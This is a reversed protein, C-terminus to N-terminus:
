QATKDLREKWKEWDPMMKKQLNYFAKTHNHHILHCLEHIIVYEISAKPAKILEPNLIIKGNTTCSGWRTKMSMLQLKPECSILREFKGIHVRLIKAFYEVSREKYWRTLLKKVDAQKKAKVIIRGKTVRVENRTARECTLRYQRGLYLHTEGNVYTRPPTLPHYSLFENQQTQIWPAKEKVKTLIKDLGAGNPATVTVTCNPHVKIGLTKRSGFLLEFDIRRSGFRIHHFQKRSM